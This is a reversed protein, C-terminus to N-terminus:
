GLSRKLEDAVATVPQGGSPTPIDSNVAVVLVTQSEPLYGIYTSYGPLEGTHGLWGNEIGLGLGYAREPTAPPLNYQFSDLRLRQTEPELIEEGTGLARAWIELDDITSVVAGASWGWSPNWDTADATEGEPQGQETIGRLHPSPFAADTPLVTEAMGLREFLDTRFYEALPRGSVQEIVLGLAITNSNSYEFKERACLEAPRRARHRPTARTDM